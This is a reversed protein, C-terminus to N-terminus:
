ISFISCVKKPKRIQPVMDKFFDDPNEEHLFDPSEVINETNLNSAATSLNETDPWAGWQSHFEYM